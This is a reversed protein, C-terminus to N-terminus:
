KLWSIQPPWLRVIPFPTTQVFSLPSYMVIRPPMYIFEFLM